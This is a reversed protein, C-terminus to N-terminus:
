EVVFKHMHVQQDVNLRLLYIGSRLSSLDITHQHSGPNLAQANEFYNTRGLLDIVEISVESSQMLDYQVTAIDSVPNPFVSLAQVAEAAEDIGVGDQSVTFEWTPSWETPTGNTVARVRWYYTKGFTLNTAEFETDSNLPSDNIYNTTGEVLASTAFTNIEDLQYEYESVNAVAKWNIVTNSPQGIATSKPSEQVPIPKYVGTMEIDDLYLHNGEGGIFMWKLMTGEQMDLSSVLTVTHDVWEGAEPTYPLNSISSNGLQANSAAWRLSWSLGGNNSAMVRLVVNEASNRRAYASKFKVQVQTYPSMDLTTTLFEDVVGESCAGHNYMRMSHTGSAGILDTRQWFTGDEDPNYTTFSTSPIENVEFNETLPLHQGVSSGVLIYNEKTKQKSDNTNTATLSIEHLGPTTYFIEPNEDTSTNPFAGPLNWDFGTAGHETANKIVIPDGMRVSPPRSTRFNASSLDFVGTEILNQESILSQLQAWNDITARMREKQGETFLNQCDDYSMYNEIMDVVNDNFASEGGVPDNACSNQSVNCGFTSQSTPPTDCVFDGSNSCNGGCGSQFTHLLGFCHGVEHTFTRGDANSTGIRGFVPNRMVIGYTFWSGGGPFQAYGNIIGGGGGFSQISEVVWVNLYSDSPWYSLGKVNDGAEYTAESNVYVVGTTPNGDPDKKALRFEIESDAAITSFVDRTQGADGNERRFDENLLEMADRVQAMEIKGVCDDHIVHVVVPVIHVDGDRHGLPGQNQTANFQDLQYQYEVAEAPNQEIWHQHRADTGCEQATVNATFLAAAGVVALTNVLNKM